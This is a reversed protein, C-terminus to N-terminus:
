EGLYFYLGSLLNYAGAAQDVDGNERFRRPKRATRRADPTIGSLFAVLGQQQAARGELYGYGASQSRLITDRSHAHCRARGTYYASAGFDLAARWEFPSGSSALAQSCRPGPRMPMATKRRRAQPFRPSAGPARPPWRPLRVLAADIVGVADRRMAPLGSCPRPWRGCASSNRTGSMATSCRRLGSSSCPPRSSNSGRDNAGCRTTRPIPMSRASCAPKLRRGRRHRRRGRCSRWGGGPKLRGPRLATASSISAGRPRAQDTLSLATAALARNFWAEHLSPDLRRARDAAAYARPLDDPRLGLRAANSISRPSTTSSGRTILSSARPRSCRHAAEDYGDPWCNTSALAHLQSPTQLDGFSERIKGATM